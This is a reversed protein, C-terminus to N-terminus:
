VLSNRLKDFAKESALLASTLRANESVLLLNEREVEDLASYLREVESQLFAFEDAEESSKQKKAM